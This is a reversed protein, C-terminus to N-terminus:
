QEYDVEVQRCTRQIRSRLLIQTKEKRALHSRVYKEIYESLHDLFYRRVDEPVNNHGMEIFLPMTRFQPRLTDHLVVSHQFPVVRDIKGHILLTPVEIVPFFDVNPFQDGMLTCGSEIVIRFVSLFPAHLVLGGVNEENSESTRAALYSSPGSGLSRGYLVIQNAPINLSNRLYSYAADIDAYCQGESPPGQSYALGYGTYDYAFV